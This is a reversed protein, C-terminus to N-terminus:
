NFTLDDASALLLEDWEGSEIHEFRYVGTKPVEIDVTASGSLTEIKPINAPFNQGGLINIGRAPIRVNGAEPKMTADFTEVTVQNVGDQFDVLSVRIRKKDSKSQHAAASKKLKKEDASLEIEDKETPNGAKEIRVTIKKTLDLKVNPFTREQVLALAQVLDIEKDQIFIKTLVAQNSNPPNIGWRLAVNYVGPKSGASVADGGAPKAVFVKVPPGGGGKKSRNKQNKNQPQQDNNDDDAM